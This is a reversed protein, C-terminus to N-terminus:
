SGDCQIIAGSKPLPNTLQLQPLPRTWPTWTEKCGCEDAGTMTRMVVKKQGIIM